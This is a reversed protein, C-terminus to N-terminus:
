VVLTERSFSFQLFIYLESYRCFSESVWYTSFPFTFLSINLSFGTFFISNAKMWFREEWGGGRGRQIVERGQGGSCGRRHLGVWVQGSLCKISIVANGWSLSRQQSEGVVWCCAYNQCCVSSQTLCHSLASSSLVSIWCLGKWTPRCIVHHFKIPCIYFTSSAFLKM